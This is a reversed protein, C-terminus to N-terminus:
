RLSFFILFFFITVKNLSPIIHSSVKFDFFFFYCSFFKIESSQNWNIKNIQEDIQQYTKSYIFLEKKKFFFFVIINNQFRSPIELM